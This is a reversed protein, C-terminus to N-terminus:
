CGLIIDIEYLYQINIVQPTHVVHPWDSRKHDSVGRPDLFIKVTYYVFVLTINLLKLLDFIRAREIRCKLLAIVAVHNENDAWEM